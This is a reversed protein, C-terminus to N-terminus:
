YWGKASWADWAGCPSSYRGAIYGLGWAIQTAPNTMWDDGASAMKSGPLAQPIGYAGTIVNGANVRWGSEHAWLEVLCSFDNESWGRAIVQDHAIAQASGPDPTIQPLTISSGSSSASVVKASVYSEGNAAVSYNGSTTVGQANVMGYAYASSQYQATAMDTSYPSVLYVFVFSAVAIFVFGGTLTKRLALGSKPPRTAHYQAVEARHTQSVAPKRHRGTPKKRFM